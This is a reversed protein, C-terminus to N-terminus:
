QEGEGHKESRSSRRVLSYVHFFPHVPSSHNPLRAKPHTISRTYLPAISPPLTHTQPVSVRTLFHVHFLSVCQVSHDAFCEKGYIVLEIRSVVLGYTMDGKGLKKRERERECVCERKRLRVRKSQGQFLSDFKESELTLLAATGLVHFRLFFFTLSFFQNSM